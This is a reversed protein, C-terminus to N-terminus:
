SRPDQCRHEYAANEKIELQSASFEAPDVLIGGLNRITELASNFQTVVYDNTDQFARPVGFRVGKLADPNLAELYNPVPQPQRMTAEDLPDRGAIACLLIAADMVSRCMPGISDM